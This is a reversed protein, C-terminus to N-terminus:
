ASKAVGRRLFIIALSEFILQMGSENSFGPLDVGAVQALGSALMAFAVIYTKYGSLFNMLFVKRMLNTLPRTRRKPPQARALKKAAAKVKALRRKWGRGFAPFTPLRKLFALRLNLYQDILREAGIQGLKAEIAELTKPGVYGDAFSGVLRQLERVARQPGSNVAYDFVCLDIGSPLNDAACRNWYYAKYIASAEKTSLSKVESKPLDQWPVIKRWRALTKRTIGLNTAGGPDRPHDVYGGEVEFVHRMANQFNQASM